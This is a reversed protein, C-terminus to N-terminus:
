QTYHNLVPSVKIRDYTMPFKKNRYDVYGTLPPSM